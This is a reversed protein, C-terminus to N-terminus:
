RTAELAAIRQRLAEVELELDPLRIIRACLAEPDVGGDVRIRGVSTEVSRGSSAMRWSEVARSRRSLWGKGCMECALCGRTTVGGCTDGVREPDFVLAGGCPQPCCPMEAADLQEATLARAPGEGCNECPTAAAGKGGVKCSDCFWFASV